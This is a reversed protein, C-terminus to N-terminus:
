IAHASVNYYSSTFSRGHKGLQQKDSQWESPRIIAGKREAYANPLQDYWDPVSAIIQDQKIFPEEKKKTKTSPTFQLKLIGDGIQEGNCFILIKKM